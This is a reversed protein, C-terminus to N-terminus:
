HHTLLVLLSWNAKVVVQTCGLFTFDKEGTLLRVLM